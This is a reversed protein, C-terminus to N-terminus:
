MEERRTPLLSSCVGWSPTDSSYHSSARPLIQTHLSYTHPLRSTNRWPKQNICASHRSQAYYDLPEYSNLEFQSIIFCGGLKLITYYVFNFQGYEEKGTETHIPDGCVRM